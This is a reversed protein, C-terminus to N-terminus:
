ATKRCEQRLFEVNHRQLAALSRLTTGFGPGKNVERRLFFIISNRNHSVKSKCFIVEVPHFRSPFKRTNKIKKNICTRSFCIIVSMTLGKDGRSELKGMQIVINIVLILETRRFQRVHCYSLCRFHFITTDM